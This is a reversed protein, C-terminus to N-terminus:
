AQSVQQNHVLTVLYETDDCSVIQDGHLVHVVATTGQTRTCPCFWPASALLPLALLLTAAAAHIIILSGISTTITTVTTGGDVDAQVLSHIYLIKQVKIHCVLHQPECVTYCVRNKLHIKPESPMIATKNISKDRTQIYIQVSATCTTALLILSDKQTCSQKMLKSRVQFSRGRTFTQTSLVGSFLVM